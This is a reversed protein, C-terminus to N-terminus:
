RIPGNQATREAVRLRASRSRPNRLQEAENPRIPKKTLPLYRPDNRFANKVLRDELSHFSIIAVRGGPVLCDPLIELARKLAGLEDNVAIRLAQFTRTAPHIPHVRSRPVCRCVLEALHETTRIPRRRREDVIARAIRRSYREEGFRFILDALEREPLRELLKWAPEGVAPDFRMDLPGPVLFSFGREADVLQDSSLGLDLVVANVPAYGFQALIRDMESYDGHIVDVPQGEFRKKLRAVAAPDKDIAILRGGPLVCELLRGAHGGGGATGDVVVHGPKLALWEVVPEILVPVHQTVDGGQQQVHPGSKSQWPSEPETAAM